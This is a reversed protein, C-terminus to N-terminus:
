PVPKKMWGLVRMDMGLFDIRALREKKVDLIFNRYQSDGAKFNEDKNISSIWTSIFVQRSDPSWHMAIPTFGSPWVDGYDVIQRTQTDLVFLYYHVRHEIVHDSFMLVYRGDPSWKLRPSFSPTNGFSVWQQAQGQRDVMWLAFQGAAGTKYSGVALWDGNPSWAPTSKLDYGELVWLDKGSQLDRMAYRGSPGAKPYVVRTLSADILPLWPLMKGMVDPVYHFDKIGLLISKQEGTYPNVVLVKGGEPENFRCDFSQPGLWRGFGYCISGARALESSVQGKASVTIWGQEAQYLLGEGNPSVFSNTNQVADPFGTVPRPVLDDTTIGLVPLPASQGLKQEQLLILGDALFGNPINPEM